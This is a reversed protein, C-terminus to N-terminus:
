GRLGELAAIDALDQPRGAHRKMAILDDVSAIRVQQGNLDVVDAREWLEEFPLPPQAFLDVELLPDSPDVMTFVTLSREDIWVRRVEPDAFAHPDVPLRPQLGVDLLAQIASAAPAAALDIVLDLDATMRPHGHLVVAVGGVVVFRVGAADLASLVPEFLAVRGRYPSSRPTTTAALPRPHRM